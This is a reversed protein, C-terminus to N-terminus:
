FFHIIMQQTALTNVSDNFKSPLHYLDKFIAFYPKSMIVSYMVMGMIKIAASKPIESNRYCCWTIIM